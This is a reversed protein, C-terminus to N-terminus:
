NQSGAPYRPFLTQVKVRLMGLVSTLGAVGSENEKM